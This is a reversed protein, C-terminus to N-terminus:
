FFGEFVVSVFRFYDTAVHREYRHSIGFRQSLCHFDFGPHGAFWFDQREYLFMRFTNQSDETAVKVEGSENAPIRHEM